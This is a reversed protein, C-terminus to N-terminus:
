RSIERLFFGMVKNYHSMTAVIWSWMKNPLFSYPCLQSLIDLSKQLRAFTTLVMKTVTGIQNNFHFIKTNILKLM